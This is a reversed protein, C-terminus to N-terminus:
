QFLYFYLMIKKVAKVKAAIMRGSQLGAEGGMWASSEALAKAITHAQSPESGSADGGGGSQLLLRRQLVLDGAKM